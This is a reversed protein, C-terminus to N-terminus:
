ELTSLHYKEIFWNLDIKSLIPNFSPEFNLLSSHYMRLVDVLVTSL